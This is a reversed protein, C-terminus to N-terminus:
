SQLLGVVWPFFFIIQASKVVSMALKFSGSLFFISLTKHYNAKTM